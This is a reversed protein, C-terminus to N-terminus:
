STPGGREPALVGVILGLWAKRKDTLGLALVENMEMPLWLVLDEKELPPVFPAATMSIVNFYDNDGAVRLLANQFGREDVVSNREVLAVRPHGETIEAPFWKCSYRFAGLTNFYLVEPLPTKRRFFNFIM